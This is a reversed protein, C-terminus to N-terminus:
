ELPSQQQSILLFTQLHHRNGRSSSSRSSLLWSSYMTCYTRIYCCEYVISYIFSHIKPTYLHFQCISTQIPLPTVVCLPRPSEPQNVPATIITIHHCSHVLSLWRPGRTDTCPVGRCYVVHHHVSKFSHSFILYVTRYFYETSKNIQFVPNNM